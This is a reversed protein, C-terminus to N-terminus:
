PAITRRRVAIALALEAEIQEIRAEIEDLASSMHDDSDRDQPVATVADYSMDDHSDRTRPVATVDDCSM